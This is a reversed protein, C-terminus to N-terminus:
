SDCYCKLGEKGGLSSVISDCYFIGLLFRFVLLSQTSGFAIESVLVLQVAVLLVSRNRQRLPTMGGRPPVVGSRCWPLLTSFHDPLFASHRSKEM